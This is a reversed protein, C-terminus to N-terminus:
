AAIKHRDLNIGFEAVLLRKHSFFKFTEIISLMSEKNEAIRYVERFCNVRSVEHQLLSLFKLLQLLSLCANNIEFLIGLSPFSSFARRVQEASLSDKTAFLSIMDVKREDSLLPNSAMELLQEITDVDQASSELKQLTPEVEVLEETGDGDTQM